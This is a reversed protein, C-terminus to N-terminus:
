ITSSYFFSNRSPHIRDFFIASSWKAASCLFSGYGSRYCRHKARYWCFTIGYYVVIIFLAKSMHSEHENLCCAVTCRISICKYVVMDALQMFFLMWWKSPLCHSSSLKVGWEVQWSCGWLLIFFNPKPM